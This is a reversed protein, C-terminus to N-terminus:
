ATRRTKIQTTYRSVWNRHVGLLAAAAQKTGAAAVAANALGAEFQAIIRDVPRDERMEGAVTEAHLEADFLAQTIRHVTAQLQEGLTLARGAVTWRSITLAHTGLAKAVLDNRGYEKRAIAALKAQLCEKLLPVPTKSALLERYESQLKDTM